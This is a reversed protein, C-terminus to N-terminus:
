YIIFTDTKMLIPGQDVEGRTGEKDEGEGGRHKGTEGGGGGEIGM